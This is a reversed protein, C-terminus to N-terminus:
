NVEDGQYGDFCAAFNDAVDRPWPTQPRELPDDHPWVVFVHSPWAVRGPTHVVAFGADRLTRADVVRFSATEFEKPRIVRGRGVYTLMDALTIQDDRQLLSVDVEAPLHGREGRPASLYKNPKWAVQALVTPGRVCLHPPPGCACLRSRYMDNPFAGPDYPTLRSRPDM